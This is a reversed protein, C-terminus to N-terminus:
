FGYRASERFASCKGTVTYKPYYELDKTIMADYDNTFSGCYVATQSGSIEAM